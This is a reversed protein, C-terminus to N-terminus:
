WVSSQNEYEALLEGFRQDFEGFAVSNMTQRLEERAEMAYSLLGVRICQLAYAQNLRNNLPNINVANLLLEYARDKNAPDNNLIRVAELLAPEFFPNEYALKEIAETSSATESQLIQSFVLIYNQTLVDGASLNKVIWNMVDKDGFHYAYRCQSLNVARLVRESGINLNGMLELIELAKTKQDLELHRDLLRLMALAKVDDNEFSYVLSALEDADFERLRYAIFAYRTEADDFLIDDIHRAEIIRIMKRATQLAGSDQTQLLQSWIFAAKEPEGSEMYAFALDTAVEPHGNQFSRKFYDVALSYAEKDLSLKGLLTHYPGEPYQGALLNLSNFAKTLNGQRYWALALATHMQSEFWSTGTSDYFQKMQRAFLTDISQPDNLTKNYNYVIQDIGTNELTGFKLTGMDIVKQGKENALVVLNNIAPLHTTNSLLYSLTDSRISLNKISLMGYLNAAAQKGSNRFDGAVNLFHFASDIHGLGMFALGLNNMLVGSSPFRELGEQLTFLAEFTRNDLQYREALNAYAFETPNKEIAQKLYAIEAEKKGITREVSALMYNARHSTSSYVNSLKYYERAAADDNLQYYLDGVGSYFGAVAQYYPTMNFRFFLGLIAILGALRFTFYPMRRPRYLVPAININQRLLDYFNALFYVVFLVGYSLQSFVVADEIVEIFFDNGSIFFFASTLHATIALLIYLFAGHPFFAYMGGYVSERTKYGWIGLVTTITMLLFAGILYAGVDLTRTNKLLLLAVNALFIISIFLFHFLSKNEGLLTSGSILRLLGSIIEHGTMFTFLITLILPVYIGYTALHMFPLDVGSFQQIVLAFLVTALVHVLFRILFPSTKKIFHFYYLAPFYLIMAVGIGTNDYRGFLVLHDLKLGTLLLTFFIAAVLFWFRSLETIMTLALSIFLGLWILLAVSPWLQVHLDSAHFSQLILYNEIMVPFSFLGLNYSFLPMSVPRITNVVEWDIVLANGTLYATAYLLVSAIFLLLLIIYVSRFPQPWQNWFFYSKM